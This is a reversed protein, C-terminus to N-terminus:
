QSLFLRRPEAAASIPVASIYFEAGEAEKKRGCGVCRLLERIWEDAASWCPDSSVIVGRRTEKSHAAYRVKMAEAAATM